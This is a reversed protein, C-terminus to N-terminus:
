KKNSFENHLRHCPSFPFPEVETLSDPADGRTRGHQQMTLSVQKLLCSQLLSSFMEKTTFLNVLHEETETATELFSNSSYPQLLMIQSLHLPIVFTFMKGAKGEIARGLANLLLTM